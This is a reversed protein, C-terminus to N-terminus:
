QIIELQEGQKITFCCNTWKNLVIILFLCRKITKESRLWSKNKVAVTFISFSVLTPPIVQTHCTFM